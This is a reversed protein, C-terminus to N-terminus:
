VPPLANNSLAVKTLTGTGSFLDLCKKIEFKKCIKEISKIMGYSPGSIEHGALILYKLDYKKMKKALLSNGTLLGLNLATKFDICSYVYHLSTMKNSPRIEFHIEFYAEPNNTENRLLEETKATLYDIHFGRM